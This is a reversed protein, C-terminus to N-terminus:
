FFTRCHKVSRVCRDCTIIFLYLFAQPFISQNFGVTGSDRHTLYRSNLTYYVITQENMWCSKNMRPSRQKGNWTRRRRTLREGANRRRPRNRVAIRWTLSSISKRANTCIDQLYHHFIRPLNEVWSHFSQRSLDTKLIVPIVKKLSHNRSAGQIKGNREKKCKYFRVCDGEYPFSGERPCLKKHPSVFVLSSQEGYSRGRIRRAYDSM